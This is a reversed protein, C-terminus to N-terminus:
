AKGELGPEIAFSGSAERWHSAIRILTAASLRRPPLGFTIAHPSDMEFQTQHRATRKM